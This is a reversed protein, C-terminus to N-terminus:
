DTEEAAFLMELLGALLLASPWSNSIFCKSMSLSCIAGKWTSKLTFSVLKFNLWMLVAATERIFWLNPFTATIATSSLMLYSECETKLDSMKAIFPLLAKSSNM